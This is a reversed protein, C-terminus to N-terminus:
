RLPGHRVGPRRRPARACRHDGGGNRLSQPEAADGAFREKIEKIAVERDLEKDRAVWVAGLGGEDHFKVKEFRGNESSRTGFSVSDEEAASDSSTHLSVSSSSTAVHSMTAEIEKDKIQVLQDRVQRASSLAAISKEADGEHSEVHTTVLLDLSKKQEPRMAGNAILIDGLSRSKDLAWQQMANILQDRDIFDVQLALIGFLLNFDTRFMGM